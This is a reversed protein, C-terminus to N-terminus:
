GLVLDDLGTLFTARCGNFFFGRGALLTGGGARGGRMGGGCLRFGCWGGGSVAVNGGRCGFIEMGGKWGGGM